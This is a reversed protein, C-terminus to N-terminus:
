VEQNPVSENAKAVQEQQARAFDEAQQQKIQEMVYAGVQAAAGRHLSLAFFMPSKYAETPDLRMLLAALTFRVSREDMPPNYTSIIFEALNNFETMGQPMAVPFLGRVWRAAKKIKQKLSNFISIDNMM